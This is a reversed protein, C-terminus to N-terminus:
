TSAVSHDGAWRAVAAGPAAAVAAVCVPDGLKAGGQSPSRARARNSPYGRPVPTPAPPAFPRVGPRSQPNSGPEVRGAASHRTARTSGCRALIADRSCGSPRCLVRRVSSSASPLLHTGPYQLGPAPGTIAGTLRVPTDEKLADHVKETESLLVM